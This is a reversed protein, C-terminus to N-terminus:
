VSLLSILALGVGLGGDQYCLWRRWKEAVGVLSVASVAGVVRGGCNPSGRLYKEPCNDDSFVKM